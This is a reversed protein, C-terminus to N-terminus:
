RKRRRLFGFCIFRASLHGSLDEVRYSVQGAALDFTCHEGCSTSVIYRIPHQLILAFFIGSM